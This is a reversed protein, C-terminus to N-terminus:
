ASVELVSEMRQKAEKHFINAFDIILSQDDVALNSFPTNKEAWV